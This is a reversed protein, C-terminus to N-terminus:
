FLALQRDAAAQARWAPARATEDLWALVFAVPGGYSEVTEASTFHSRYGTETVPLKARDPRTATISLHATDMGLEEGISLWNPEWTIELDIGQWTAVHTEIGRSM